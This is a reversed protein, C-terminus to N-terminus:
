GPDAVVTCHPGDLRVAVSEGVQFTETPHTQVRLHAGEIAVVYDATNGLFTAEEVQGPIAQDDGDRALRINEPRVALLVAAGNALSEPV